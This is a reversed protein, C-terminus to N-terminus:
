IIRVKENNSKICRIFYPTSQALTKMLNSLSFEFQRSVSSSKKTFPKKSIMDKVAKIIEVTKVKQEKPKKQNKNARNIITKFCSTDCFEPVTAESIEGRLFANLHTDSGRRSPQSQSDLLALNSESGVFFNKCHYFVHYYTFKM